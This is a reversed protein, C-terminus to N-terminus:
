QKVFRLAAVTISNKVVITYLGSGLATVDLILSNQNTRVRKVVQGTSNVLVIESNSSQPLIIKVFDKAPNPYIMVIAAGANIRVIDSYKIHGKDDRLKLRYYRWGTLPDNDTVSYRQRGPQNVALQTQYPIFQRGDTSKELEYGWMGQESETIWDLRVGEDAMNATFSILTVPLFNLPSKTALTFPSFSGIDLDTTLYGNSLTIGPPVSFTPTGGDLRWKIGTGDDFYHTIVLDQVSQASDGPIGNGVLSQPRWSLSLKANPNADPCTINWYELKSIHDLPPWQVNNTDFHGQAIYEITYTKAAPLAPQLAAPAFLTDNTGIKVKGTPVWRTATGSTTIAVPGHIFGNKYGINTTGCCTAYPSAPSSIATTDRLLPRQAATSFLLGRQLSLTDDINVSNTLTLSDNGTKSLILNKVSAPLGSGTVQAMSGTYAYDGDSQFFRNTMQVCGAPTPATTIGEALGIGLKGKSSTPTLVIGSGGATAPRSITLTNGTPNVNLVYTNAPIGTGSIGMGPLYTSSNNVATIQFSNATLTGTMAGPLTLVSPFMIFSAGSLVRTNMLLTGFVHVSNPTAINTALNVTANKAVIFYMNSSLLFNGSVQQPNKGDFLLYGSSAPSFSVTGTQITFNGGIVMGGTLNFNAINVNKITFTDCRFPSGGTMSQNFAPDDIEFNAYTRGNLSPATTQQHSYLSGTQFVVVSNPQGAGFPNAGSESIYKAGAQFVVSNLTTIGFANGTFNLGAHFVGGNQFVLAGADAATLRHADGTFRITDAVQGTCGTVINLTLTNGVSNLLLKSGAAVSFHPGAIATNGITVIRNGGSVGLTVTCNNYMRIKGITETPTFTVIPNAQLSGDFELIDNTAPTTRTPTWSTPSAWSGSAVNWKYTSQAVLQQGTLLLSLLLFYRKRM